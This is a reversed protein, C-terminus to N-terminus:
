SNSDKIYFRVAGPSYSAAKRGVSIFGSGFLTVEDLKIHIKEGNDFQIHTGNSSIDTLIFKEKKYEIRAHIRSVNKYCLAFDNNSQRGITVFPRAADMIIIKNDWILEMSVKFQYINKSTDLLLTTDEDDWIYEYINIKDTKGKLIINDIYRVYCRKEFNLREQTQGTILTQREKSLSIIRAAINVTDGFIDNGDSIVIGFHIGIHINLPGFNNKSISFNLNKHMQKSADLADDASPFICMIEDGIKKICTGRNEEAISSLRSLTSGILDSAEEDGFIEYLQTSRSIDAFLIACFFSKETINYMRDFLLNM